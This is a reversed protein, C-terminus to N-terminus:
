SGGLPASKTLHAVAVETRGSATSPFGAYVHGARSDLGIYDGAFPGGYQHIGLDGDSSVGTLRQHTWTAGGDTSTSLSTDFLRDAPDFSRDHYLVLLTGDETIDLRPHFQANQTGDQNVQVPDSWARGRTDSWAIFIDANGNRGDNWAAYLRGAHPGSSADSALEIRTGCRFKTNPLPCTIPTVEFMRVPDSFSRADDSSTALYATRLGGGASAQWVDIFVTGDPGAALGGAFPSYRAEPSGKLMVPAAVSQGRDRTSVVYANVGEKDEPESTALRQWPDPGSATILNWAVTVTGTQPNVVTRPYDHFVNYRDGVAIPIIDQVPFTEGGDRSVALFYHSGPGRSVLDNPASRDTREYCCAQLPYYLIGNADFALIPDTICKIGFLPHTPNQRDQLTGGVYVTRWTKGGDKTVQGVSWVCDTAKPDLDKSALFVNLPNKPNVVLDIETKSPSDNPSALATCADVWNAISCDPEYPVHSTIGDLAPKELGPGLCGSIALLPLVLFVSRM